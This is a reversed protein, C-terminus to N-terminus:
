GTDQDSSVNPAANMITHLRNLAARTAEPGEVRELAELYSRLGVFAPDEDRHKSEPDAELKLDALQLTKAVDLRLARAVAAVKEASPNADFRVGRRLEYGREYTQLLTDSIGAERAVEKRSRGQRKRTNELVKGLAWTTTETDGSVFALM